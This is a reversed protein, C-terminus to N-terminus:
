RKKGERIITMSSIDFFPENNTQVKMIGVVQIISGEIPYCDAFIIESGVWREETGQFIYHKIIGDIERTRYHGRIRFQHGKYDNPNEYLDNIFGVYQSENIETIKNDIKLNDSNPIDSDISQNEEISDSNNDMKVIVNKNAILVSSALIILVFCFIMIRRM